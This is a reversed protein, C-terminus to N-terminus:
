DLVTFGLYIPKDMVVENKKIVYSDCNEYSKHTGNFTKKTQQKIIKKFDDKKIFEVKLRNQVNEMCKGHFSNNLLVFFDKAFDNKARNRKQTNFNTYKGLWKSQKFSIIEHIKEVVMGHRVYFNLM